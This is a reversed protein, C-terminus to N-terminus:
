KWIYDLKKRDPDNHHIAWSISQTVLQHAVITSLIRKRAIRGRLGRTSGLKKFSLVHTLDNVGTGLISLAENGSLQLIKLVDSVTKSFIVPFRALFKTPDAQLSISDVYEGAAVKADTVSYGDAVLRDVEDLWIALKSNNNIVDYQLVDLLRLGDEVGNVVERVIPTAQILNDGADLLAKAKNVNDAIDKTLAVARSSNDSISSVSTTFYKGADALTDDYVRESMRALRNYQKFHGLPRKSPITSVAHSINAFVNTAFRFLEGGFKWRKIPELLKILFQTVNGVKAAAWGPTDFMQSVANFTRKDGFLGTMKGPRTPSGM